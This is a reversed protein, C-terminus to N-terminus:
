AKVNINNGLHPEVSPQVPAIGSMLTEVANKHTEQISQVLSAQVGLSANQHGMNSAVIGVSGMADM